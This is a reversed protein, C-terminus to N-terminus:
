RNASSSCDSFFLLLFHLSTHNISSHIENDTTVSKHAKAMSESTMRHIPEKGSGPNVQPGAAAVMLNEQHCQTSAASSASM